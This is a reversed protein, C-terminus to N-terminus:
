RAQMIFLLLLLAFAVCCVPFLERWNSPSRSSLMMVQNGSIQVLSLVGQNRGLGCTAKSIPSQHHPMILFCHLVEHYLKIRMLVERDSLWNTSKWRLELRHVLGRHEHIPHIPGRSDGQFAVNLIPFRRFFPLQKATHYVLVDMGFEVIPFTELVSPPRLS